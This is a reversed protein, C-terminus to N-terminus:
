KWGVRQMQQSGQGSVVHFTSRVSMGNRDTLTLQYNGNELPLTLRHDGETTGVPEGNLDWFITTGVHRHAAHMVLPSPSGDLQVPLLLTTGNEPYILEMPRDGDYTSLGDWPPLHVHGPHARSFYYEMAPPLVFWSTTHSGPGGGVRMTGAANVRIPVHYPCVPTRLAVTIIATSDVVPCDASARHGSARCVPMNTMGDFPVPFANGKPLSGLVDFLIPAAALTGTLGPRGEGDANGVWVGVAFRTNVGIAWADRHGFSTGTKWAIASAHSFHEWGQESQPRNPLQLARLTHYSAAAGLPIPPPASPRTDDIEDLWPHPEIVPPDTGQLDGTSRLLIRMMSAYAGTLEWLTSEAGGMMLALGYHHAPLDISKLGMSRLVGLTREIGHTRLARVAPVNLSRALAQSAPVAGDFRDDFNRPVFGDFQTPLDAVLQDPMLEGQQLMAAYLFPKLLSGTSRRAQIIDVQEAHADGTGPMNGVYALVEGRELDLVLVAANHVENAKLREAHRSVISRAREQIHADITSRSLAGARGQSRALSLLHPARAPLPLPQEPLPEDLALSWETTDIAGEALLRGLLRDRKKRLADRARGPHMRAPANPLVALTACESWSLQGAPRGFWRWAAAKLGVVNGGFPAHDAYTRLIWPKDHRLEIRLALFMEVLKQVVNRDQQGRAMRALQMTITSGGSVVRGAKNNQRWARYLSPLHIGCHDHFHRDEFTLLCREFREPVPGDSPMRWQGDTAVTAGLTGGKRDLIVTSEPDSFLPAMPGYRSWLLVLLIVVALWLIWRPRKTM